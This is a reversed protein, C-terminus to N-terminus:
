EYRLVNLPKEQAAGWATLLTAGLSLLVALGILGLLVGYPLNIGAEGIANSGVILLLSLGVGILGGLLGVLGNELLLLGLVNEAQLGLAKMVGIQRRRELTALSVANAMIVVSAFLAMSMAIIPLPVFQEVFGDTYAKLQRTAVMFIGPQAALVDMVPNIQEEDVTLLYPSPLTPEDPPIVNPSVVGDTERFAVMGALIFGGERRQATAGRLTVTREAGSAFRLTLTDGPQLDFWAHAASNFGTELILENEGDAALDTGREMHYPLTDAQKPKLTFANLFNDISAEVNGTLNETARIARARWAELDTDGNIAVITVAYKDDHAITRVGPLPAVKEEVNRGAAVTQVTILLNGGLAKEASVNVLNLTGQVLLWLLGLGGVGIILALLTSAARARQGNLARQALKLSVVGFNPLHVVLWLLGNLAWTALGLILLIGYTAVLGMVMDGVLPGVILGIITALAALTLASALRGATPTASDQPHLIVKPRVSIAALIPLFGFVLTVIVGLAFGIGLADPYLAWRLPASVFAEGVQQLGLAMGQGILLGLGSGVLGLLLAETLFMWLIATASVGITKLVAIETTRRSVVVLMTNAIGLGGILLSILGMVTVLRALTDSFAGYTDRLDNPTQVELGPFAALLNQEAAAVDANPDTARLFYSAPHANFVEQATDLALYGFPFITSFLDTLSAESKSDIIATLTFEGEAGALTVSDGLSLKLRDAIEQTLALARPQALAQALTTGPPELITVQGYYPYTEPVVGYLATYEANATNGSRHIPTFPGFNSWRAQLDFGNDSAWQRLRAEGAESLSVVQTGGVTVIAEGQVDFWAPNVPAQTGDGLTALAEPSISSPMRVALDGRNSFRLDRTLADNMMNGLTRLAVIAAVGAAICFLVFATRQRERNLHNLAYRLYFM